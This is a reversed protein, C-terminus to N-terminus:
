KKEWSIRADAVSCYRSLPLLKRWSRNVRQSRDVNVNVNVNMRAECSASDLIHRTFHIYYGLLLHCFLANTALSSPSCGVLVEM